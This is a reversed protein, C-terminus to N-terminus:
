VKKTFDIQLEKVKKTNELWICTTNGDKINTETEVSPLKSVLVLCFVTETEVILGHDLYNPDQNQSEWILRM